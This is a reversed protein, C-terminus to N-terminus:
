DVEESMLRLIAFALVSSGRLETANGLTGGYSSGPNLDGEGWKYYACLKRFFQPKTHYVM